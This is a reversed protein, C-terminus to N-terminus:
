NGGLRISPNELNRRRSSWEGVGPREKCDKLSEGNEGISEVQGNEGAVEKRM